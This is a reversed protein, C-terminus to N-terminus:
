KEERIKMIEKEVVEKLDKGKLGKTKAEEIRKTANIIKRYTRVQEIVSEKKETGKFIEVKGYELSQKSDEWENHFFYKM